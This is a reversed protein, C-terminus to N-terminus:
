KGRRYNYKLFRITVEVPCYNGRKGAPNKFIVPHFFRTVSPSGEDIWCPLVEMQSMWGKVKIVECTKGAKKALKCRYPPDDSRVPKGAESTKHWSGNAYQFENGKRKIEGVKLPRYGKGANM